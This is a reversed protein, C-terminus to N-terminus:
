ISTDWLWILLGIAMSFVMDYNKESIGFEKKFDTTSVWLAMMLASFIVARKRNELKWVLFVFYLKSFLYYLALFFYQEGIFANLFAKEIKWIGVDQQLKEINSVIYFAALLGYVIAFPRLLTLADTRNFFNLTPLLVVAIQHFSLNNLM